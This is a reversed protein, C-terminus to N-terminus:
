MAFTGAIVTAQTGSFVTKLKSKSSRSHVDAATTADEGPPPL